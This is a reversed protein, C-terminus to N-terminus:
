GRLTRRPFELFAEGSLMAWYRTARPQGGPVIRVQPGERDVHLLVDKFGLGELWREAETVSWMSPDFEARMPTWIGRGVPHGVEITVGAPPEFHEWSSPAAPVPYQDVIYTVTGHQVAYVQAAPAGAMRLQEPVSPASRAYALKLKPHADLVRRRAEGPSTGPHDLEYLRMMRALEREAQEWTLDAESVEEYSGNDHQIRITEM